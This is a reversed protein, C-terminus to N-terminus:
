NETEPEYDCDDSNLKNLFDETRRILEGKPLFELIEDEDDSSFKEQLIQLAKYNPPIHRVRTLQGDIKKYYPVEYGNAMRKLIEAISTKTFNKHIEHPNKTSFDNESPPKKPRGGMKGYEKGLYGYKGNDNCRDFKEILHRTKKRVQSLIDEADKSIETEEGDLAYTFLHTMVEKFLESDLNRTLDAIDRHFAFTDRPQFIQKEMGLNYCQPMMITRHPHCLHISISNIFYVLSLACVTHLVYRAVVLIRM